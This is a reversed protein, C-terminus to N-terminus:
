SLCYGMSHALATASVVQKMIDVAEVYHLAGRKNILEKLTQGRVYEM